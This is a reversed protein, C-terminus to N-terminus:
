GLLADYIDQFVAGQLCSDDYDLSACRCIFDVDTMKVDETSDVDRMDGDFEEFVEVYLEAYTTFISSEGGIYRDLVANVYDARKDM